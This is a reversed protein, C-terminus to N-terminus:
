HQQVTKCHPTNSNTFGKKEESATVSPFWRLDHSIYVSVKQLAFLNNERWGKRCGGWKKRGVRRRKKEKRKREEEGGRGRVAGLLVTVITTVGRLGREMLTCHVGTAGLLAVKSLVEMVPYWTVVTIDPPVERCNVTFLADALSYVNVPSDGYWYALSPSGTWQIVVTRTTFEKPIPGFEFVALVM